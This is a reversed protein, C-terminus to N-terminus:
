QQQMQQQKQFMGCFVLQNLRIAMSILKAANAPEGLLPPQTENLAYKQTTGITPYGNEDQGSVLITTDNIRHDEPDYLGFSQIPNNVFVDTIKQFLGNFPKLPSGGFQYKGIRRSILKAM